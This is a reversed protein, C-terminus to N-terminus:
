RRCSTERRLRERFFAGLRRVARLRFSTSDSLQRPARMKKRLGPLAQQALPAFFGTFVEACRLNNADSLTSRSVKGAGLHYRRPAHSEGAGGIDRLSEAGALRGYLLALLRSKPTLKRVRPDAGHEDVLREFAPWPIPKPLAQFVSNQQRM